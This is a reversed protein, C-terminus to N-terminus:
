SEQELKNIAALANKLRKDPKKNVQPYASIAERIEQAAEVLKIMREDIRISLCTAPFRELDERLICAVDTLTTM